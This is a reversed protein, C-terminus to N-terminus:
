AWTGISALCYKLIEITEPKLAKVAETQILWEGKHLMLQDANRLLEIMKNCIQEMM